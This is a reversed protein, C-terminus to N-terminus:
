RDATVNQDHRACAIALRQYFSVTEYGDARATRLKVALDVYSTGAARLDPWQSAAFESRIRPYDAAAVQHGSLLATCGAIGSDAPAPALRHRAHRRPHRRRVRGRRDRLPSDRGYTRPPGPPHTGAGAHHTHHRGGARRAQRADPPYAPHPTSRPTASAARIPPEDPHSKRSYLPREEPTNGNDAGAPCRTAVPIAKADAQFGVRFGGPWHHVPHRILHHFPSLRQGPPRPVVPRPLTIAASATAASVPNVSNPMRPGRSTERAPRETGSPPGRCRATSASSSSSALRTTDISRSASSMQAPCGGSPQAVM